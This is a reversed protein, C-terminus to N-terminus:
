QGEWAETNKDSFHLATRRPWPSAPKMGQHPHDPNGEQPPPTSSHVPFAQRERQRPSRGLQEQAPEKSDRPHLQGQEWTRRLGGRTM